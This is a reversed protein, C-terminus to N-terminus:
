RYCIWIGVTDCDDAHYSTVEVDFHRSFAEMIDEDWYIGTEESKKTRPLFISGCGEYEVTLLGDTIDEVLSKFEEFTLFICKKLQNKRINKM